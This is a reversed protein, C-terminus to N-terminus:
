LSSNNKHTCTTPADSTIDGIDSIDHTRDNGLVWSAFNMLGVHPGGPDQRGWIPGTIAGHVKNHHYHIPLAVDDTFRYITVFHPPLYICQIIKLVYRILKGFLTSHCKKSQPVHKLQNCMIKPFLFNDKNGQVCTALWCILRVQYILLSFWHAVRSLKTIKTLVSILSAKKPIHRIIWHAYVHWM